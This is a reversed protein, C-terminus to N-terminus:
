ELPDDPLNNLNDIFRKKNNEENFKLIRFTELAIFQGILQKSEFESIGESILREFNIKTEM